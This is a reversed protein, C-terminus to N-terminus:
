GGGGTSASADFINKMCFSVFGLAALESHLEERRANWILCLGYLFDRSFSFFCFFLFSISFFLSFSVLRESQLVISVRGLFGSSTISMRLATNGPMALSVCLLWTMADKRSLTFHLLPRLLRVENRFEPKWKKEDNNRKIKINSKTNSSLARACNVKWDSIM